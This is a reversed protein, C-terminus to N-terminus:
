VVLVFVAFRDQLKCFLLLQPIVDDFEELLVARLLSSPVPNRVCRASRCSPRVTTAAPLCLDGRRHPGDLFLVLSM